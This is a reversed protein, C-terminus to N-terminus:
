AELTKLFNYGTRAAEIRPMTFPPEQELFFHRVGADYAAPLLTEWQLAGSGVETPNMKLALNPETSPQIDKMHIASYRGRDRTFLTAPDYGAAAAWGVDLEFSVLEPDTEALLMDFGTGDGVPAFEYNHNHYGFAIDNAALKRGIDNLQGAMRKWHEEGMAQAVRSIFAYGEGERPSIGIGAPIMMSPAYVNTVGLLHMDASLKDIDGFLGPEEATGPRMGVHAATCRLGNADFLARLDTPTKGLYSPIEVTEYGIEAVGSVAAEPNERLMDALTYLQIGIPLNRKQFFTQSQISTTENPTTQDPTTQCAASMSLAAGSAGLGQMMRRRTLITM